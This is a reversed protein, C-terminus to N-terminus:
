DGGDGGDSDGDNDSDDYRNDLNDGGESSDGHSYIWAFVFAIILGVTLLADM